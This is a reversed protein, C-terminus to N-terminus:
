LKENDIFYKKLIKNLNQETIPKLIYDIKANSYKEELGLKNPTLMVVVSIKYGAIKEIREIIKNNQLHEYDLYEFRKSDPMMDDILILDWTKNGYLLDNYEDYNNAVGVEVNYPMLMKVLSKLKQRNDDVILVRKGGSNFPRVKNKGQNSKTILEYEKVDKQDFSITFEVQDDKFIIDYNAHLLEVLKSLIKYDLGKFNVYKEKSVKNIEIDDKIEKYDVVLSIKLRCLSRVHLCIVKYDIKTLNFNTILCNFLYLCAQKIKASDGYLVVPMNEKFEHNVKIKRNGIKAIFLDNIQELVDYTNYNNLVIEYGESEIKSLDIIGNIQDVLEIAMKKMNETENIVEDINKKDIKKNGFTFLKNLSNSINLSLHNLSNMTAKSARKTMEKSYTLEKILKIDPNEITFYMLSTILAFSTNAILLSPNIKQVIATLLLFVVLFIIPLYKKEKIHNLNKVIYFLMITTYIGSLGFVVNVSPGYSYKMGNENFFNIPLFIVLLLLFIVILWFIIYLKKYEKKYDISNTNKNNRTIIFVYEMFYSLWLICLMLYLRLSFVFPLFNMDPPLFTIYIESVLASFSVFILRTFIKNESNSIKKKSFYVLMIMVIFCLSAVSLYVTMSM